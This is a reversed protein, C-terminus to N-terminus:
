RRRLYIMGGRTSVKLLPGGGNLAGEAVAPRMGERTMRIEPFESVIRSAGGSSQNLAQITVAVNSPIYVTVDGGGAFLSSDELRGGPVLEALISGLATSANLAGSVGLLQITGAATEAQAGKGSAIKICGAASEATVLGGAHLVDILGGATSATVSSAAHGIHINGGAGASTRVPGAAEGINIEGGATEFYAEGGIYGAHISGGGSLCRLSGGIRGLKIEGGGTRIVVHHGIRDMRIRGGGTEVSVSGDLDYAEVAGAGTELISHSLGRPAKLELECWAPVGGPNTVIVWTWDDKKKADIRFGDLLRRAEAETRAKVRKKLSYTIRDTASGRVALPGQCSVRLRGSPSVPAAGSASQVWYNGERTISSTTQGLGAAVVVPLIWAAKM